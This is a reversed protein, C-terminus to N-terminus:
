KTAFAARLTAEAGDGDDFGSAGIRASFNAGNGWPWWLCYAFAGAQLAGLDAMFMHQNGRLGGTGRCLDRIPASAAALNAGAIMTPMAAAASALARPEDAKAVTALMCEFREDWTWTGGPWGTRLRSFVEALPQWRADDQPAM